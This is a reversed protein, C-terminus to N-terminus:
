PYPVCLLLLCMSNLRDISYSAYYDSLLLVSFFSFPSALCLLLISFFTDTSTCYKGMPGNWIVTKCDALGAQIDALTKPGIDLGMWGAEINNIDVVQHAICLAHSNSFSNALSYMISHIHLHVLTVTLWDPISRQWNSLWVTATVFYISSQTLWLTLTYRTTPTPLSNILSLLM